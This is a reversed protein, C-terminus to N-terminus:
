NPDAMHIRRWEIMDLNMTEAMEEILVDSKVVKVLTLKPRGGGKKTRKVQILDSNRVLHM